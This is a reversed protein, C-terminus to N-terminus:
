LNKNTNDLNALADARDKYISLVQNVGVIDVVKHVSKNLSCLAATGGKSAMKKSTYLFIRLGASSIYELDNLDFIITHYNGDYVEQIKANVLNVMRTDLHGTIAIIAVGERDTEETVVKIDTRINM